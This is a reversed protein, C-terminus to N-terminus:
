QCVSWMEVNEIWIELWRLIYSLRGAKDASIDRSSNCPMDDVPPSELEPPAADGNVARENRKSRTAWANACLWSSSLRYTEITTKEEGM